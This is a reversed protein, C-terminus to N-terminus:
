LIIISFAPVNNEEVLLKYTSKVNQQWGDSGYVTGSGTM